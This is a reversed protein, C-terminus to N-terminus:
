LIADRLEIVLVLNHHPIIIQRDCWKRLANATSSNPASKISPPIEKSCIDSVSIKALFKYQEVKGKRIYRRVRGKMIWFLFGLCTKAVVLVWGVVHSKV